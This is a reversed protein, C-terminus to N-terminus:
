KVNPEVMWELVILGSTISSSVAGVAIVINFNVTDVRVDINGNLVVSVYPLPRADPFSTFCTGYIRTFQVFGSVKYPIQLIGGAPIAGFPYVQRLTQQRQNKQIFWSEGTIASRNNPFIGITRANVANATDIYSKNLMYNLQKPDEPFERSSQLYAVNNVLNNSM